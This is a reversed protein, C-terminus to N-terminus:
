GPKWQLPGGGRPRWGVLQGGFACGGGGRAASSAPEQALSGGGVGKQAAHPRGVVGLVSSGAAAVSAQPGGFAKGPRRLGVLVRGLVGTKAVGPLQQAACGSEAHGVRRDAELGCGHASDGETHLRFEPQPIALGDRREADGHRGTLLLGGGGM